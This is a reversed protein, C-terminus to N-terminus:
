DNIPGARPLTISYSAIDNTTDKRTLKGGHAELIARAVLTGVGMGPYVKLDSGITNSVTLIIQEDLGAADVRIIKDTTASIANRVLNVIAQVLEIEQGMVILGKEIPSVILRFGNRRTETEIIAAMDAVLTAVAIPSPEDVARGGFRRLRRIMDSLSGVKRELLAAIDSIEERSAAANLSLAALHRSEISLTSLPQSIEHIVAVSMARLTKLREAQYLLRDRQAINELAQRQADTYSGALYGSIAVAALGMHLAFRTAIDVTDQSIPLAIVATIVIAVWAAPRGCRLGVWATALMVPTLLLGLNAQSAALAFAWGCGFLIAGEAIRPMPVFNTPQKNTLERALMLLPPALLMVGLLDGVMFATATTLHPESPLGHARGPRLLESALSIIAASIPALVSALAFPMPPTAIDAGGRRVIWRVLIIVLGYTLPSRAVGVMQDIMDPSGPQIIGTMFQVLLEIGIVAPLWRPGGWWLLAFRIGAAPYFLSYYYGGGWLAALHHALIFMLGYAIALAGDRWGLTVRHPLLFSLRSPTLAPM